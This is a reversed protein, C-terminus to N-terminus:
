GLPGRGALLDHDEVHASGVLPLFRVEFAGDVDGEVLQATALVAYIVTNVLYRPLPTVRFVQVYNELHWSDPWYNSTLAQDSTMLSLLVLYVVPTAFM